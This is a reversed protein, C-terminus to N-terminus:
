HKKAYYVANRWDKFTALVEDGNNVYFRGDDPNWSLIKGNLVGQDVAPEGNALKSLRYGAM